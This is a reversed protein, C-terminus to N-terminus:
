RMPRSMFTPRRGQPLPRKMQAGPRPGSMGTRLKRSKAILDNFHKTGFHATVDRPIVFEGANLRAPIDDTKRGRSPSANRPVQGGSTPVIGRPQRPRRVAGGRAYDGGYDSYDGGDSYDDGLDYSSNDYSSDYDDYGGDSYDDGFDYSSDDYSTDDGGGDTYDNGDDFNYDSGDDFSYDSGDDYNGQDYNDDAGQEADSWTDIGTDDPQSYNAQQMQDNFNDIQDNWGALPSSQNGGSNAVPQQDFDGTPTTPGIPSWPLSNFGGGTNAPPTWNQVTDDWNATDPTQLEGSADRALGPSFQPQVVGNEDFYGIPGFFGEPATTAEYDGDDEYSTEGPGPDAPADGMGKENDGEGAGNGKGPQKPQQQQKEKEKQEPDDKQSKSKQASQQQSSSQSSQGIPPLKNAAVAANFFPAASQALNAGTNLLGLIANEAGTLGAYASQIANMAMGPINQGWGIAREKMSRGIAETDMAAKTGAGARAAADQTRASLLSSMYRGSNPDIGQSQLKREMEDMAAQDAQAVTSEAQGAMFRQRGESAYSGAESIYQDMLPKIQDSYQHLLTDALGKGKGSMELFNNITQDSVGEGKAYQDMAWQYQRDGLMQM